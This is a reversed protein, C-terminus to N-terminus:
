SSVDTFLFRRAIHVDELATKIEIGTESLLTEDLSWSNRDGSLKKFKKESLYNRAKINEVSINDRAAFTEKCNRTYEKIYRTFDSM